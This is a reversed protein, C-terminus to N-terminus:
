FDVNIIVHNKFIKDVSIVRYTLDSLGSELFDVSNNKIKKALYKESKYTIKKKTLKFEPDESEHPLTSFIGKNRRYPQISHVLRKINETELSCNNIIGHNEEGSQDIIRNNKIQDFNYDLILHDRYIKSNYNNKMLKVMDSTLPINWFKIQAIKGHFVIPIFKAKILRRFISKFNLSSFIRNGIIYDKYGFSYLKESYKIPIKSGEGNTHDAKENNIFISIEKNENDVSLILSTWQNYYRKFWLDYIREGKTHIVGNYSKTNSYAIFYRIGRSIIPMDMYQCKDEGFVYPPMKTSPLTKVLLEISFSNDMMRKLSPSCKIRIHSNPKNFCLVKKRGIIEGTYKVNVLKNSKCRWFLDDDEAGWGWYENNYGNVQEFQERTFLVCEGFFELYPLANQFKDTKDAIHVPYQEPYSYDCSDTTPLLDIDHFAFYDFNEKRAIDFAINKLKGRNFNKNNAQHCIFIKHPIKKGDLYKSLYPVFIKLHQKRDRYPVCVALKKTNEAIQDINIDKINM